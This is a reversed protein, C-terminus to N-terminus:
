VNVGVCRFIIKGAKVFKEEYETMVNEIGAEEHLNYSIEKMYLGSAKMEELTFEFLEIGDTKFQIEGKEVLIRLYKKLLSRYTLRRKEHRKKPWPDSFNLYLRHIEGDGFIIDIDEAIIKTIIVNKLSKDALERAVKYLLEGSKEIGVYNIHPNKEALTMLFQGKGIGIEIHIPNDNKFLRTWNGRLDETPKVYFSYEQLMEDVGPINRVRM